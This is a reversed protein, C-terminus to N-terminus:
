RSWLMSFAGGVYYQSDRVVLSNVMYENGNQSVNCYNPYNTSDYYFSYGSVMAEWVGEVPTISNDANLTFYWDVPPETTSVNSYM